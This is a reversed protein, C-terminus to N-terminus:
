ARRLEEGALRQPIAWSSSKRIASTASAGTSCLRIIPRVNVRQSVAFRPSSSMAGGSASSAAVKPIGELCAGCRDPSLFAKPANALTPFNKQCCIVRIRYGPNGSFFAEISEGPEHVIKDSHRDQAPAKSEIG